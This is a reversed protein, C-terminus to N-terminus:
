LSANKENITLDMHSSWSLVNEHERQIHQNFSNKYIPFCITTDDAYKVLHCNIEDVSFSGTTLAFLYPGLVSGQPVGSTVPVACSQFDGVRVYQRRESLYSRVWSCFKMPFNCATLRSLILDSRLRDFAKSYDYTVIM